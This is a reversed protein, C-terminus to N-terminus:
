WARLRLLAGSGDVNTVGEQTAHGIGVERAAHQLDSVFDFVDMLPALAQSSALLAVLPLEEGKIVFRQQRLLGASPPHLKRRTQPQDVGGKSIVVAKSSVLLCVIRCLLLLEEFLPSGFDRRAARRVRLVSRGFALLRRLRFAFPVPFLMLLKGFEGRNTLPPMTKISGFVDATSRM